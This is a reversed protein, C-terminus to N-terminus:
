IGYNSSAIIKKGTLENVFRWTLKSEANIGETAANAEGNSTHVFDISTSNQFFSWWVRMESESLESNVDWSIAANPLNKKIARVINDFLARMEHGALTGKEQTRAGYYNWFGHEILFVCFGQRGIWKAINLSNHFYRQLILDSNRRIFEAGKHCLNPTDEDCENLGSNHGEFGIVYTYFVPIKSLEKSENLMLGHYDTNFDTCHPQGSCGSKKKGLWITVFDFKDYNSKDAGAGTYDRGYSFM